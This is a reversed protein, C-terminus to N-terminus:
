LLDREVDEQDILRGEGIEALSQNLMEMAAPDAMVDLTEIITEIFELNVVAFAQTNHRTIYIVPREELDRDLNNFRKRAESIDLAAVGEMPREIGSDCVGMLHITHRIDHSLLSFRTSKRIEQRALGHMGRPPGM